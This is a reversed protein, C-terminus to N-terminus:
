RLADRARPITPIAASTAFSHLGHDPRRAFACLDDISASVQEHRPPIFLPAAHLPLPGSGSWNTAFTGRMRMPQGRMLREHIDLIAEPTVRDTLALAHTMADVKAAFLQTNSGYKALGIEARALSRAGATINEIQSSLASETHLLISSLPALEGPSLQVCSLM